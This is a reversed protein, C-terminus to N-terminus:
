YAGDGTLVVRFTKFILKIDLWLSWSDIYRLDLRVWDEFEIRSRGSVQWICTLGPKTALRRTQWIKYQAVEDPLPPRPGVVSMDGKVINWLQPLEDISYKRLIGGIKTIRPDKKIKFVPGSKENLKKLQGKLSESNVVMTRFKYLRFKKGGQGIRVQSFLVPGRSTMKILLAVLLMIPSLLLLGMLSATIDIVRKFKAQNVCDNRPEDQLSESEPLKDLITEEQKFRFYRRRESYLKPSSDAFQRSFKRREFHREWNFPTISSKITSELLPPISRDVSITMNECESSM